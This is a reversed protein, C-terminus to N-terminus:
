PVQRPPRTARRRPCWMPLQTPASLRTRQRLMSRLCGLHRLPDPCTSGTPEGAARPSCDRDRHSERRRCPHVGSWPPHPPSGPCAAPQRRGRTQPAWPPQLARTPRLALALELVLESQLVPPELVLAPQVAGSGPHESLAAHASSESAAV